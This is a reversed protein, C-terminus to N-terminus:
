NFECISNEVSDQAIPTGKTNSMKFFIKLMENQQQEQYEPMEKDKNPYEQM